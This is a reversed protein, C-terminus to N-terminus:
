YPLLRIGTATGWKAIINPTYTRPTNMRTNPSILVRVLVSCSYAATPLLCIVASIRLLCPSSIVETMHLTTWLCLTSMDAANFIYNLQFLVNFISQILIINASFFSQKTSSIRILRKAMLQWDYLRRFFVMQQQIMQLMLWMEMSQRKHAYYNPRYMERNMLSSSLCHYICM